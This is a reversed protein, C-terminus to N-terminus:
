NPQPQLSGVFRWYCGRHFTYSTTTDSIKRHQHCINMDDAWEEVNYYRSLENRLRMNQM